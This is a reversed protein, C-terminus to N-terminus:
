LTNLLRPVIFLGLFNERKRGGAKLVARQPYTGVFGSKFVKNDQYPSLYVFLRSSLGVPSVLANISCTHRRDRQFTTKIPTVDGPGFFFFASYSFGDYEM